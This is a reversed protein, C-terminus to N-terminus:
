EDDEDVEAQFENMYVLNAQAESVIHHIRDVDLYDNTPELLLSLGLAMNMGTFIHTHPRNKYNFFNQNVSGALLDTLVVVEEDESREAFIEQITEGIPKNDM